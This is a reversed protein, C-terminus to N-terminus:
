RDLWEGLTFPLPNLWEDPFAERGNLEQLLERLVLGSANTERGYHHDSNPLSLIHRPLAHLESLEEVEPLPNAGICMDTRAVHSYPYRWLSTNPSLRGKKKVAVVEVRWPRYLGEKREIWFRFVLRPYPIAPFLTSEFQFPLVDPGWDVVLRISCGTEDAAYALTGPPLVPSKLWKVEPQPEKTAELFLGALSALTITTETVVGNQECRVEVTGDENIRLDAPM